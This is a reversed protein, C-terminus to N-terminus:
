EGRGELIDTAEQAAQKLVKAVERYDVNMPKMSSEGEAARVSYRAFGVDILKQEVEASLLYDILKKAADPHPSGKVLAVTTPITLTGEGSQDPLVAELRGGQKTASEVDDNDTLGAWVTGDAVKEAVVSNGGLLKVDNARLDRLFKRAEDRGWLVYLAAVHGTTTGASPHAMAVRGKLTPDLLDRLSDVDKVASAGEGATTRAVVRARLGSGTWRGDPDKFLAPVDSGAPSAYPELVGAQALNITHFVENGWWVDAKPNEREAELRTALGVSKNREADTRLIVTIGTRETFTSVIPRAYPEDVSTYLVVTGAAAGNGPSPTDDKCGVTVSGMLSLALFAVMPRFHRLSM